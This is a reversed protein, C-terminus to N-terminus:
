MSEVLARVDVKNGVIKPAGLVRMGEACGGVAVQLHAKLAEATLDPAEGRFFKVNVLTMGDRGALCDEMRAKIDKSM